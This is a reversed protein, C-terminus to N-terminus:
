PKRQTPIISELTRHLVQRLRHRGHRSHENNAENCPPCDCGWNSYTGFKGHNEEPVPAKLYGGRPHGPDAVWERLERRQRNKEASNPM